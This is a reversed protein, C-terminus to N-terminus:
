ERIRIKERAENFSIMRGYAASSLNTALFHLSRARANRDPQHKVCYDYQARFGELEQALRFAPDTFFKDWWGLPDEGQQEMHVKEHAIVDPPLEGADPSYITDGYCFVMGSVNGLKQQARERISHPPHGNSINM